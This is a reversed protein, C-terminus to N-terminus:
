NYFSFDIEEGEGEGYEESERGGQVDGEEEGGHACVLPLLFNERRDKRGKKRKKARRKTVERLRCFCHGGGSVSRRWARREGRSGEKRRRKKKRGRRRQAKVERGRERTHVHLSLLFNRPEREEDGRREQARMLAYPLPSHPKDGRRKERKKKDKKGEEEGGGRIKRM